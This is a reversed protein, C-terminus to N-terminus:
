VGTPIELYIGTGEEIRIKIVGDVKQTTVSGSSSEGSVEEAVEEKEEEEEVVESYGDVNETTM